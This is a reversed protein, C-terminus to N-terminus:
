RRRGRRPGASVSSGPPAASVTLTVASAGSMWADLPSRENATEVTCISFRGTLVPLKVLKVDNVGPTM